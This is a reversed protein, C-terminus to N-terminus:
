QGAQAAAMAVVTDKPILSESSSVVFDIRGATSAKQRQIELRDLRTGQLAPETALAQLYLPVLDATEASGTMAFGRPIATFTAGTVWLGAVHQHALAEMRAAFGVAMAGDSHDLSRLALQRRELEIAMAKLRAEQEEPSGARELLANGEAVLRQHGAEQAGVRAIEREISAVHWWTVLTIVLLGAALAGLNAGIARASFLKAEARFVPQYLNVEQQVVDHPM